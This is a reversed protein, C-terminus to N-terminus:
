DIVVCLVRGGRGDGCDDATCPRAERSGSQGRGPAHTPIDFFIKFESARIHGTRVRRRRARLALKKGSARNDIFAGRSRSSGIRRFSGAFSVRFSWRSNKFFSSEGGASPAFARAGAQRLSAGPDQHVVRNCPGRSFIEGGIALRQALGDVISRLFYRSATILRPRVMKLRAASAGSSSWKQPPLPEIAQKLREMSRTPTRKPFNRKPQRRPFQL